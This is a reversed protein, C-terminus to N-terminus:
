QDKELTRPTFLDDALGQNVLRKSYGTQSKVAEDKPLSEIVYVAKGDLTEERLLTSTWDAPKHGILDGFTLDSGVFSDRKNDSVLRRTKKLAPLYIWMDDDADSQEIM